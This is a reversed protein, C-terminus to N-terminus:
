CHAHSYEQPRALMVAFMAAFMVVHEILLLAGVDEVLGAGVLAAVGLAPSSSSM